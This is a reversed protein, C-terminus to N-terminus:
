SKDKGTRLEALAVRRKENLDAQLALIKTQTDVIAAATLHDLAMMVLKEELYPEVALNEEAAMRGLEEELSKSLNLKM